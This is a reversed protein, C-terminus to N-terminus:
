SVAGLLEAEAAAVEADTFGVKRAIGELAVRGGASWGAAIVKRVVGAIQVPTPAAGSARLEAVDKKGEEISAEIGHLAPGVIAVLSLFVAFSKFM